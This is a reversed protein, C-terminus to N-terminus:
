GASDQPMYKEKRRSVRRHLERSSHRDRPQQVEDHNEPVPVGEVSEGDPKQNSNKLVEQDPTEPKTVRPQINQVPQGNDQDGEKGEESEPQGETTEPEKKSEEKKSDTEKPKKDLESKKIDPKM